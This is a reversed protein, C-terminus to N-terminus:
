LDTAALHEGFYTPLDAHPSNRSFTKTFRVKGFLKVALSRFTSGSIPPTLLYVFNSFTTSFSSFFPNRYALWSITLFGVDKVFRVKQAKLFFVFFDHDLDLSIEQNTDGAFRGEFIVDGLEFLDIFIDLERIQLLERLLHGLSLRFLLLHFIGEFRLQLFLELNLLGIRVKLFQFSDQLFILFARMLPIFHLLM